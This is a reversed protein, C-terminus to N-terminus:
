QIIIPGILTDIPLSCDATFLSCYSVLKLEGIGEVDAIPRRYQVACHYPRPLRCRSAANLLPVLFPLSFRCFSPLSSCPALLTILTFLSPEPNGGKLLCLWFTSDSLLPRGYFTHDPCPFTSRAKTHDSNLLSLTVESLLLHKFQLSLNPWDKGRIGVRHGVTSVM